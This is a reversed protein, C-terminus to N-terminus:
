GAGGHRHHWDAGWTAADSRVDAAMAVAAGTLWGAQRHGLDALIAAAAGSTALHLNATEEGMAHLLKTEDRERPLDGLEIRSCDPALRRIVWRGAAVRWGPDAARTAQGMLREMTAAQAASGGAPDHAPPPDVPHRATPDAGALAASSASWAWASPVIAKAERAVASGCLIGTAVVRPRGLSGVGAVRHGVRIDTTGAPLDARAAATMEPPADTEGPLSAMKAWYRDPDKVAATALNRIVHHHEALVFPRGGDGLTAAYGDLVASAAEQPGVALRADAAAVVASAVLRVLDNTYPMEAAEDVDNVGWVLRGEADRWTGFNEVHLDGVALVRPADALAACVLPWRQAWRYATGRFFPFLGSAMLEHKVALDARVVPVQTALWDEYAATAAVIGTV